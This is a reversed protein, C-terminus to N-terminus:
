FTLFNIYHRSSPLKWERSLNIYRRTEVLLENLTRWKRSYLAGKKVRSEDREERGVRLENRVTRWIAKQCAELGFLTESSVSIFFLKRGEMLIDVPLPSHLSRVQCSNM